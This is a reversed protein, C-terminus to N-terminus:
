GNSQRVQKPPFNNLQRWLEYGLMVEELLVWGRVRSGLRVFSENPWPHDNKDPKIWVNFLGNADAVPEVFEVIGGFTGLSAGPIGSFQFIPWGEFQLRVKRGKTILPGDLGSVKIVVSRQTGEPIFSALIDGSRVFTAAGASMLRLITGDQPAYKTQVSQRSLSIKVESIQALTSAAEAKLNELNVEIAEIDRDSVLGEKLLTRQRTLNSQTKAIASINASHQKEMALLQNELRSILEKDNDIVTVIPDGAKVRQGERVYWNQIQGTTLASIAQTREMPNLTSVEGSGQATQVWPVNTLIIVIAAIFLLLLSAVVPFIRPTKFDTLSKVNELYKQEIPKM